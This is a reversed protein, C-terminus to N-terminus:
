SEIGFVFESTGIRVVDGEQLRSQTIREGNVWTGGTTNFDSLVFENDGRDRLGAHQPSIGHENLRVDCDGGAGIVVLAKDFRLAQGAYVGSRGTLRFRKPAVAKQTQACFLCQKWDPMMLNGCIPCPKRRALDAQRAAEAAAEARRAKRVRLVVILLVVAVALVSAVVTILIRIWLALGEWKTSVFDLGRDWWSLVNDVRATYERTTSIGGTSFLSRVSFSVTDGRRLEPAEATVVIRADLEGAAEEFMTPTMSITPVRRYTGGTKRALIRLSWLHETIESDTLGITMVRVGRRRALYVLEQLRAAPREESTEELQGDAIVYLIRDEPFPPADQPRPPPLTGEEGREPELGPALPFRRLAQRTARYLWTDGGGSRVDALTGPILKPQDVWLAQKEEPTAELGDHFVIAAGLSGKPLDRFLAPLADRAQQWRQLYRADIVAAVARPAGHAEATEWDTEDLLDGDAYVSLRKIRDPSVPKDGDLLSIWLRVAPLTAPEYRDIKIRVQAAAPAALAVLAAFALLALLAPAALHLARM